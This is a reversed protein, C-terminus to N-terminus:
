LSINTTQSSDISQATVTEGVTSATGSQNHFSEAAMPAAAAVALPITLPKKGPPSFNSATTTM